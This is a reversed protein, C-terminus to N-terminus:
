GTSEAFKRLLTLLAEHEERREETVLRQKELEIVSVCMEIVDSTYKNESDLASKRTSAASEFRELVERTSPNAGAAWTLRFM